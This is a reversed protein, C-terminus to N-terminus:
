IFLFTLNVFTCGSRSVIVCESPDWLFTLSHRWVAALTHLIVIERVWLIVGPWSRSSRGSEIFDNLLCLSWQSGPPRNQDSWAALNVAKQHTFVATKSVVLEASVLFIRLDTGAARHDLTEPGRMVDMSKRGSLVDSKQSCKELYIISKFHPVHFTIM